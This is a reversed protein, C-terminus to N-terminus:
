WLLPSQMGPQRAHWHLNGLLHCMRIRGWSIEQPSCPRLVIHLVHHSSSSSSTHNNHQEIYNSNATSGRPQNVTEIDIIKAQVRTEIRKWMDLLCGGPTTNTNILGHQRPICDITTKRRLSGLLPWTLSYWSPDDSRHNAVIISGASCWTRTRLLLSM